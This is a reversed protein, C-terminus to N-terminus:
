FLSYVAVICLILLTCLSGCCTDFSEKGDLNLQVREGFMDYQTFSRWLRDCWGVKRKKFM